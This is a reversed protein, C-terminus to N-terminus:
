FCKKNLEILIFLIQSLFPCHEPLTHTHTHTDMAIRDVKDRSIKMESVRSKLAGRLSLGYDCIPRWPLFGGCIILFSSAPFRFIHGLTDNIVISAKSQWFCASRRVWHSEDGRWQWHAFLKYLPFYGGGGGGCGGGEVGAWCWVHFAWLKNANILSCWLVHLPQATSRILSLIIERKM